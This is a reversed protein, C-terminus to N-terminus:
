TLHVLEVAGEERYRYVPPHETAEFLFTPHSTM